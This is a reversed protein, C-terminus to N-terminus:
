WGRMWPRSVLPSFPWPVSTLILFLAISYWIALTKFKAKDDAKRKASVSGITIFTVAILMVSTHEMGFFRIQRNHVADKFNSMFYQTVPSIFFLVLGIVLQIHTVVLTGIRIRNDTISFPKNALWGRYYRFIGLLLGVLVLWRTLSHLPLLYQYM